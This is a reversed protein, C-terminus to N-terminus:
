SGQLATIQLPPLPPLRVSLPRGNDPPRRALGPDRNNRKALASRYPKGKSFPREVQCSRLKRLKPNRFERARGLDPQSSLKKLRGLVFELPFPVWQPRNTLTVSDGGFTVGILSPTPANTGRSWVVPSYVAIEHLNNEPFAWAKPRLLATPFFGGNTSQNNKHVVVIM